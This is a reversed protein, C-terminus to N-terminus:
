RKWVWKKYKKNGHKEKLIYKKEEINLLERKLGDITVELDKVTNESSERNNRELNYKNKYTVALGSANAKLTADDAPELKMVFKTTKRFSSIEIASFITETESEINLELKLNEKSLCEQVLTLLAYPFAHFDVVLENENKIKMFAADTLSTYHLFLPDAEDTIRILVEQKQSANM